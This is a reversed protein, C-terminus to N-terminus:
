AWTQQVDDQRQPDNRSGPVRADDAASGHRNLFILEDLCRTRDTRAMQTDDQTVDEWVDHGRNDDNGSDAQAKGDERLRGQTEQAQTYGWRIGGPALHQAARSARVHM